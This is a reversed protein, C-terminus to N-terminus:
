ADSGGGKSVYVAVKAPSFLSAKIRNLIPLPVREFVEMQELARERGANEFILYIPRPNLRYSASVYSIIIALESERVGDAFFM